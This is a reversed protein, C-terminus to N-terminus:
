GWCLTCSCLGSSPLQTVTGARQCFVEFRRQTAPDAVFPTKLANLKHRHMLLTQKERELQNRRLLQEQHLKLWLPQSAAAEEAGQADGERLWEKKRGLLQRVLSSSHVAAAFNRWLPPRQSLPVAASEEEGGESSRVGAFAEREGSPRLGGGGEGEGKREAHVRPPSLASGAGSQAECRFAEEEEEGGRDGSLPPLAKDMEPSYFLSRSDPVSPRFLRCSSRVFNVCCFLELIWGLKERRFVVFWGTFLLKRPSQPCPKKRM